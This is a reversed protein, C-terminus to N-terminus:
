DNNDLIIENIINQARDFLDHVHSYKFDASRGIIQLNSFSNLFKHMKYLENNLSSTIIPYAYPIDIIQSDIVENNQLLSNDQLFSIIDEATYEIESLSLESDYPLEVVICTKGSPAMYESRNKPEYIRTFPIDEQPFYISANDTLKNKNLFLVFLRLNRYKLSDILNSIEDPIRPYMGKLLLPMPLTSIVVDSKDVGITKGDKFVINKIFKGDHILNLVKSNLVISESDIQDLLSTFIQGFGYKPYLFSGDLHKVSESSFLGKLVSKIDLNKLRGGAINSSLQNAKCGWLKETYNILFLDALTKGYSNYALDQFNVAEKGGKLQNFINEGLIKINKSFGMKCLIDIANIPFDIFKGNWFIKSPSSVKQLEDGLLDKILHTVAPNKDHFRHAGTDYRFDGFEITKCNGGIASSGEYLAYKINNQHAYYASAMGAPGGGLIHVNDIMQIFM